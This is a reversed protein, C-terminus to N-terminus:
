LSVAKGNFEAPSSDAPFGEQQEQDLSTTIRRYNELGETTKSGASHLAIRATSTLNETGVFSSFVIDDETESEQHSKEDGEETIVLLRAEFFIRTQHFHLLYSFCQSGQNPNSAICSSCCCNM